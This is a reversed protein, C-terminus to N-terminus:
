NPKRRITTVLKVADIGDGIVTIADKDEGMLAVSEVGSVAVVTKLVRIRSNQGHMNVKIGIKQVIPRYKLSLTDKTEKSNWHLMNWWSRQGKIEKLNKASDSDFPLRCLKPCHDVLLRMLSPFRLAKDCICELKPLFKLKLDTLCYFIGQGSADSIVEVMESCLILELTQLYPANILWNVNKIQCSSISVFSLGQFCEQGTMNSIFGLSEGEKENHDIEVENLYPCDSIELRELHEMRKLSLKILSSSAKDSSNVIRLQKICGRLKLSDLVKQVSTPSSLSIGIENVYQLQELEELIGVDEPPYLVLMRFVQLSSIGSIVGRAIALNSSIILFRLSDALSQVEAPLEKISTGSLNLYNLKSLKGIDAPLDTLGKNDSLDLIRLAPMCLLFGSRLTKLNTARIILTTLRNCSPPMQDLSKICAGCLSIREADVWGAFDFAKERVLVKEQECALWLAMEHILDHMKVFDESEGSGLLSAHKLGTIIEEGEERAHYIDNSGDLFGEALWLEILEEKKINLVESFMSFYLFCKKHTDDRLRDYSLKLVSFVRAEVHPFKSPNTKLTEIARKWYRVNTKSAMARGITTLMLPVGKCVDVIDKALKQIEPHANLSGQGVYLAFLEVAADPPLPKVEISKARMKDCDEQSRTTFIVKSGKGNGVTPVGAEELLDSDLWQSKVDDLLLLVERKEIRELDGSQIEIWIVVSDCTNSLKNYIKRLLTTKGLGGIGYLGIIGVDPEEIWRWIEGFNYDLGVTQPMPMENTPDLPKREVVVVDFNGDKILETVEKLKSSVKKGMRNYSCCNKPCFWRLPFKKRIEEQAENIIEEMDETISEGEKDMLDCQGGKITRDRKKGLGRM